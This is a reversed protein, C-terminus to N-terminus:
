ANLPMGELGRIRITATTGAVETVLFIKKVIPYTGDFDYTEDSDITAGKDGGQLKNIRLLVDGGGDNSLTFSIWPPYLPLKMITDSVTKKIPKVGIPIKSEELKRLKVLQATQAAMMIFSAVNPDIREQPIPIGNEIVEVKPISLESGAM